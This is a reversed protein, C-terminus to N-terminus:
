WGGACAAAMQADQRGYSVSTADQAACLVGAGGRTVFVVGAATVGRISVTGATAQGTTYLVAPDYAAAIQPGFGLLTGNEALYTSSAALASQLLAEAQVDSAQNAVDIAQRGRQSEGRSLLAFPVAAILGAVLAVVVIVAFRGAGVDTPKPM